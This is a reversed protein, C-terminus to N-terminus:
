LQLFYQHLRSDGTLEPHFTTVLMRGQRVAAPTPHGNWGVDPPLTALIEVEAGVEEIGPARIFVGRFPPDGLLGIPLETEFSALQRGFANRRVVIDMMGLRPQEPLGDLVRNAMLIGGACTGWIPMGARVRAQIPELLSFRVLLKGITTSEGGPVILREVAALDKPLRVQRTPVQLQQFLEEHERFDGQLALVGVTM